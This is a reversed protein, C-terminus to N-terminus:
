RKEKKFLTDVIGFLKVFTDVSNKDIALESSRLNNESILYKIINTKYELKHTFMTLEHKSESQLHESILKKEELELKNKDLNFRDKKINYSCTNSQAEEYTDFIYPIDKKDLIIRKIVSNSQRVTIKNNTFSANTQLPIVEDGLVLWKTEGKGALEITLTNDLHNYEYTEKLRSTITGNLLRCLRDGKLLDAYSFYNVLRYVFSQDDYPGFEKKSIDRVFKAIDESIDEPIMSSPHNLHALALEIDEIRQYRYSKIIFVGEEVIPVDLIRKLNYSDNLLPVKFPMGDVVAFVDRPTNKFIHTKFIPKNYYKDNKTEKVTEYPCFTNFIEDARKYEISFHYM